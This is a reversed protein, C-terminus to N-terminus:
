LLAFMSNGLMDLFGSEGETFVTDAMVLQFIRPYLHQKDAGLMEIVIRAGEEMNEDEDEQLAQVAFACVM